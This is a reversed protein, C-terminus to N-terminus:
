YLTSLEFVFTHACALELIAATLLHLNPNRM